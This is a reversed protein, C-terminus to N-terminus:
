QLVGLVVNIHHRDVHDYYAYWPVATYTITTSCLVYYISTRIIYHKCREGFPSRACPQTAATGGHSTPLDYPSDEEQAKHTM